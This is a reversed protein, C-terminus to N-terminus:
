IRSFEIWVVPARFELALDWFVGVLEGIYERASNGRVLKALAVESDILLLM